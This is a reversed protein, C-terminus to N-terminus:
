CDLMTHDELVNAIKLVFRSGNEATMRFNQDRESPLPQATAQIGYLDKVISVADQETFQPTHKLLSMEIQKGKFSMKTIRELHGRDSFNVIDGRDISKLGNRLHKDGRHHRSAKSSM